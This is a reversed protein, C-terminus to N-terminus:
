CTVAWFTRVLVLKIQTSWLGTSRGGLMEPLIGVCTALATSVTWVLALVRGELYWVLPKYILQDM